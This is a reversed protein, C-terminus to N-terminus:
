AKAGEREPLSVLLAVRTGEGPESQITFEGGVAAAREQMGHLGYHGQKARGEDVAFGLGNDRVSLRMATPEYHLEVVAESAKSHREVNSLSEQAVRFVESELQAPVRHYAGGMKLRVRFEAQAYRKVLETLRAPLSDAATNARLNWISQRAEELGDKVLKRTDLLQTQAAEVQKSKLLASALDIQLAVSVFDQALTDHVERAVRNRENLVLNFRREISLVRLRYVGFALASLVALALLYFWWQRYFPPLVRLALTAGDWNWVGDNNAAQVRFVFRRAPLNTYSATHAVGAEIWDRDFGQLMYRYRNKSPATFSMAAFDFVYRNHGPQVQLEGGTLPQDVEDVLVREIVVPPPLANFVIQKPNTVALGARTAFWLQGDDGRWAASTGEAALTDSPMGDVTGYTAVSAQCEGMGRVCQLLESEAVRYVGRSGRLWLYGGGDRLIAVIETPIARVAAQRFEGNAFYSLGGGHIGIWLGGAAGNKAIATVISAATKQNPSFSEVRDGRVHSIGASTGVWLDSGSDGARSADLLPGISDSGLGDATTLASWSRGDFKALGRRTGAWVTGRGDVLVSRVFDDPLGTAATYTEVRKGDVHNLGDPTGVWVDGHTGRALSLIFKSALWDAPVPTQLSAATITHLGEGRSGFWVTGDSTTVGATVVEGAAVGASRFVRPRLVHLGSSETGVWVNGERDEFLSAVSEGHLAPVEQAKASEVSVTFLGRTTGVWTQGTHAVLLSTVRGASFDKSAEWVRRTSPAAYFVAKASHAWNAGAVVSQMDLLTAASAFHINEPRLMGNKYRFIGRDGFVLVGGDPMAELGVIDSFANQMPAFKGASLRLLGAGTLVLLSGDNAAALAAVGTAPFGEAEGERRWLGGRLAALGDSSGVWLAGSADQTIATIDNGPLAPETEHRFATFSSGDFRVAGNETALWLYGDSTQLIGHVGTVPAGEEALWAQHSM